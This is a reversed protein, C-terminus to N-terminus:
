TRLTLPHAFLAEPKPNFILTSYWQNTPAARKLMVDTRYPATPPAQDGRKPSLHYSGSGLTVPQASSMLAISLGLLLGTSWKKM